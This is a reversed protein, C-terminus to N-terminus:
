LFKVMFISFFSNWKIFSRWWVYNQNFISLKKNKIKITPHTYIYLKDFLFTYICILTYIIFFHTHTYIYTHTPPQTSLYILTAVQGGLCFNRVVSRFFLTLWAFFPCAILLFFCKWEFLFLFNLRLDKSLLVTSISFENQLVFVQSNWMSRSDWIECTKYHM